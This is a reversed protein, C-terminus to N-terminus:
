SSAMTPFIYSVIVLNLAPLTSFYGRRPGSVTIFLIKSYIPLLGASYFIDNALVNKM